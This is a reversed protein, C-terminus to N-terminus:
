SYQRYMNGQVLKVLNKVTSCVDIQPTLNATAGAATVNIPYVVQFNNLYGTMLSGAAQNPNLPQMSVDMQVSADLLGPFDRFISSAYPKVLKTGLNNQRINGSSTSWSPANVGYTNWLPDAAGGRLQWRQTRYATQLQQTSRLILTQYTIPLNVGAAFALVPQSAVNISNANYYTYKNQGDILKLIGDTAHQQLNAQENDAGYFQQMILAQNALTPQNTIVITDGPDSDVVASFQNWQVAFQLDSGLVLPMSANYGRTFFFPLEGILAQSNADLLANTPTIGNQFDITRQAASLPGRISPIIALRKWVPMQEDYFKFKTFESDLQDVIQSGYKVQAYQWASYFLFDDYRATPGSYNAGGPTGMATVEFKLYLKGFYTCVNNPITWTSMGGWTGVVQPSYGVLDWYFNSVTNWPKPFFLSHGETFLFASMADKNATRATGSM